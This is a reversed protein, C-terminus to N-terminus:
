QPTNPPNLNPPRLPEPPQSAHDHAAKLSARAAEAQAQRIAEANAKDNTVAEPDETHGQQIAQETPPKEPRAAAEAAQQQRLAEEAQRQAAAEPTLQQRAADAPKRPGTEPPPAFLDGQTNTM